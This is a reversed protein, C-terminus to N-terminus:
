RRQEAWLKLTLLRLFYDPSVRAYAEVDESFPAGTLEEILGLSAPHDRSWMSRVKDSTRIYYGWNVWSEATDLRNSHRSILRRLAVRYRFLSLKYQPADIPLETNNDPIVRVQPPICKFVAKRFMVKNLRSGIPTRWYVDLINRFAAPSYWGFVRQAILRQINDGERWLPFTRSAMLDLRTSESGFAAVDTALVVARRENVLEQYKAVPAVFPLYSSVQFGTLYERRLLRSEKTDIALSKFLYDFYCGTVLNDCGLDSLKDRFGLFHNSAISGMGGSIRVGMEATDAYHDFQRVMPVLDIELASAITNATLFENNITSGRISLARLNSHRVAQSAIMRSDLGGSLAIFTNGLRPQTIQRTAKSVASALADARDDDSMRENIDFKNSASFRKEAIKVVGRQELSLTYHTGHDLSVVRSYYTYPHPVQGTALFTALSGYDWCMSSEIATALSDPHSSFVFVQPDAPRFSPYCGAPDLILSYTGKDPEYIHIAYAGNLRYIGDFGKEEFANFIAKCALGGSGTLRGAKEWESSELAIRGALAIVTANPSVYPAWLEAPGSRTLSLDFCKTRIRDMQMDPFFLLGHEDPLKDQPPMRFDLYYDGM